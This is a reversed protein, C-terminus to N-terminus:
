KKRRTAFYLFLIAAAIIALYVRNNKKVVEFSDSVSMGEWTVTVHWEGEMADKPLFRSLNMFTTGHKVLEEKEFVSQNNPNVLKYILTTDEEPLNVVQAKAIFVFKVEEGPQYVPKEIKISLDYFQSLDRYQSGGGGGGGTSPCSGCDDSCSSCTEDFTANCIGDGCFEGQRLNLYCTKNCYTCNTGYTVNCPINTNLVGDDCQEIEGNGNIPVLVGDGCISKTCISNAFCQFPVLNCDEDNSCRCSGNICGSECYHHEHAIYSGACYYEILNSEDTCTDSRTVIPPNNPNIISSFINLRPTTIEGAGTSSLIKPIPVAEQLEAGVTSGAIFFNKGQDVGALCYPYQITFYPISNKLTIILMAGVLISVLILTEKKIKTTKM